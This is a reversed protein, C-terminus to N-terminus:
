VLVQYTITADGGSYTDGVIQGLRGGVLDDLPWTLRVVSGIELLLGIAVPVTVQYLRRRVGWLAVLASAIPAAEVANTLLTVLQPPDNPRRYALVAANSQAVAFRDAVSIAQKRAPTISGGLDSTQVTYAHQYGVQWRYTPPDLNTPLAIPACSVAVTRNLLAVPTTNPDLDRPTYVSLRGDRMPFVMAAVSAAIQGILADGSTPETLYYGSIQKNAAAFSTLAALNLYNSPVALDDILLGRLLEGVGSNNAMSATKAALADVTIQHVAPSGLQFLGLANCTRYSGANTSGSYLDAVDGQSAITQAGGEYLGLITGGAADTWQYIRNTADILIPAINYVNGRVRPKPRGTLDIGGDLGSSGGYLSRQVTRETWYSADRIPVSLATDNLFWNRAMGIFLIRLSSRPPDAFYGRAPDFVKNGAYVRVGRGDSNQRSALSNYRGDVNSLTVSGWGAGAAQQTPDLALSRSIQFASNLGPPYVAIAGDAPSTRYGRDSVLTTTYTELSYSLRSLGSWPVAGYADQSLGASGSAPLYADIEVVVFGPGVVNTRQDTSPSSPTGQSTPGGGPLLGGSPQRGSYSGTGVVYAGGYASGVGTTTRPGGTSTGVGSASSSGSASGVGTLTGSTAGKTLVIDAWIPRDLGTNTTISIPGTTTVRGGTILAGHFGAQGALFASGGYDTDYSYARSATWNGTDAEWTVLHYVNADSSGTITATSLTNGNASPAGHTWSITTGAPAEVLVYNHIDNSSPCTWTTGDGSQVTRSYVYISQNGADSAAFNQIFGGPANPADSYGAAVLVLVNGAVPASGLTLTASTANGQATAYQRIFPTGASTLVLDLWVPSVLTNNTTISQVGSSTAPGGNISAGHYKITADSSFPDGFNTEGAFTQSTITWPRADAEWALIRYSNTGAPAATLAATSCTNGSQGAVGHNITLTAQGPTEVLLYCYRDNNTGTTWIRGDGTQVTRSWVNISQNSLDSGGGVYTFGAPVTPTNSWGPVVLVLTNGVTPTSPLTLTASANEAQATAYQILYTM